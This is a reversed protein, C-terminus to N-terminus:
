TSGNKGSEASESSDHPDGTSRTNLHSVSAERGPVSSALHRYLAIVRQNYHDLTFHSEIKARAAKGMARVQEPREYCWQIAAALAHVDQSPVILGHKEHTICECAGSRDTAVTVLGSAMAELLVQALGENSSPFVFLNSRHYHRAVEARPAFGTTFVNSGTYSKLLPVIEPKVEGVLLLEADRLALRKWAELLYGLGKAFEIRGVYCVRFVPHSRDASPPVEYPEQPSFFNADVGTHVLVTKKSHGFQAFSEKAASSNVVIYDALQYEREMRRILVEPFPGTVRSPDVGFRRCEEIAAAQWHRPHRTPAEVVTIAGQRKAVSLGKICIGAYGHFITSPQIWRSALRDALLVTFTIPGERPVRVPKPLRRWIAWVVRNLFRYMPYRKIVQLAGSADPEQIDLFPSLNLLSRLMGASNLSRVLTQQYPASGM